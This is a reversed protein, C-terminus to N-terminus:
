FTIHAKCSVHIIIIIVYGLCVDFNNHVYSLVIKLVAVFISIVFVISSTEISKKCLSMLM